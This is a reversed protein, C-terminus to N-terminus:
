FFDPFSLGTSPVRQLMGEPNTLGVSTGYFGPLTEYEFGLSLTLIERSMSYPSIESSRVLQYM